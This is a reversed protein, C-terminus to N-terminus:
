GGAALLEELGDQVRGQRMWALGRGRRAEADGPRVALLREYAEEAAADSGSRLHLWGLNSWAAVCGPDLEAARRLAAEAQELAGQELLAAGIAAQTPADEELTKLAARYEDVAEEFRGQRHLYVAFRRRPAAADPAERVAARLENETDPGRTLREESDDLGHTRKRRRALVRLLDAWTADAREDLAARDAGEEGAMLRLLRYTYARLLLHDQALATAREMKELAEPYRDPGQAAIADGLRFWAEAYNADADLAERQRSEAEAYEGLAQYALGLDSRIEASRGKLQAAATLQRVAARYKRMRYLVRGLGYRADGSEPEELAWDRYAAHSEEFRGTLLLSEALRSRARVDEPDLEMARQLRPVALAYRGLEFQALGLLYHAEADDPTLEIVRRLLPLAEREDGGDVLAQAERFLATAEVVDDSPLELPMVARREVKGEDCSALGLPLLCAALLARRM